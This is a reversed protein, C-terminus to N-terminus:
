NIPCIGCDVVHGCGDPLYGCQEGCELPVCSPALPQAGVCAGLDFLMYLLVKEQKSLAGGCHNPFTANLYPGTGSGASVHFGSYAVRGCAAEDPAAYPTNFSFQQVRGALNEDESSVTGLFEESASGLSLNQSRPQIINEIEHDPAGTSIQENVLWDAFNGIRPSANPSGISVDLTGTDVDVTRDYDLEWTGAADLGTAIPESADYAQSGNEHLWSFSLHSAFMRGGRNVYERLKAGSAVRQTFNADWSQGECDSVVMDYNQLRALDGYLTSDFPTNGDIRAGEPNDSDLGGRYLDIRAAGAGGAGPNGFEDHAIGIKEFVCEMADIRGTSIAIRPLHAALGDDSSRPLRTPNGPLTTPLATTECRAQEPLTYEIARRFKGAKVVLLFEKAVPINGELEFSGTADTVAGLLVPGLDQDECRDCSTGNTPIGQAIAPLDGLETTRMIYVVANPVGIQNASDGDTRGATIVRGTLRTPQSQESCDPISDCVDCDGGGTLCETPEGGLGGVCIEGEGCAIGEDACSITLGCSLFEGCAYGVEACTKPVCPGVSGDLVVAQKGGSGGNGGQGGGDVTGGDDGAQNPRHGDSGGSESCAALILSIAGVLLRCRTSM